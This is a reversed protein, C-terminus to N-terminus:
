RPDGDRRRRAKTEPAREVAEPRVAVLNEAKRGVVLEGDADLVVTSALRPAGDVLLAQPAGGDLAVAAATNSTGYDIALTWGMPDRM